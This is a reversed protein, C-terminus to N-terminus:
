STLAERSHCDMELRRVYRWAVIVLAAECTVLAFVPGMDGFEYSLLFASLVTACSIAMYAMSYKVHTNTASLLITAVQGFSTIVAVLVFLNFLDRNMTIEGHSWRHIIEGGFSLILLAAVTAAAIGVLLSKRYLRYLAAYEGLGYLRSFEPWLSRNIAFLMQVIVRSLTRYASFMTLYIAGFMTGVLLTMGQISIASGIPFAMFSLAPITLERVTKLRARKIGWEFAPYRLACYFYMFLTCLMRAVLMGIATAIFTGSCLLGVVAGIWEVLRAVNIMYTGKAYEGSSRFVADFLGCFVNALAVVILLSLAIKNSVDAILGFNLVSIVAFSIACVASVTILMLALASQFVQNSEDHNNAASLMTMKNMAVSAMGVDAISFYVPIASLMLWNGYETLSWFHLFVPLSVLQIIVTIANGFVNAGVGSMVRKFLSSM